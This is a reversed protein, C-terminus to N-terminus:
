AGLRDRSIFPGELHAGPIDPLDSANEGRVQRVGELAAMIRELPNTITTPLITTTGHRLHFRALTRVGDAGDMTDAGGGGHVHVDIFGPLIIHGDPASPASEIAEITRSFRLSAPELGGQGPLLLQGALERSM